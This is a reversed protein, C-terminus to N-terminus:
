QDQADAANAADAADTSGTEAVQADQTVTGPGTDAPAAADGSGSIVIPTTCAPHTARSRDTPCCRDSTVNNLDSARFCSLGNDTQCDDSGNLINCVEGEGQNSCATGIGIAALVGTVALLV